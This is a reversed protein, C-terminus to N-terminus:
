HPFSRHLARQVREAIHSHHPHPPPVMRVQGEDIEARWGEPVDLERWAQLLDDWESRHPMRSNEAMAATM